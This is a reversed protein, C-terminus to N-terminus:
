SMVLCFEQRREWPSGAFPFLVVKGDQKVVRSGIGLYSGEVGEALSEKAFPYQEADLYVASPDGLGYMLGAVISEAVTSPDFDPNAVNYKTVARWLDVM